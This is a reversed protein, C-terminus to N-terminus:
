GKTHRPFSIALDGIVQAPWAQLVQMVWETDEM